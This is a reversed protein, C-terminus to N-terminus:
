ERYKSFIEDEYACCFLKTTLRVKQAGGSARTTPREARVYPRFLVLNRNDNRKFGSILNMKKLKFSRPDARM